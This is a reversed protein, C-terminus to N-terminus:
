KLSMSPPRGELSPTMIALSRQAEVLSSPKLGHVALVRCGSAGARLRKSREFTVAWLGSGLGDRSENYPLSHGELVNVHFVRIQHNPSLAPRDDVPYYVAVEDMYFSGMDVTLVKWRASSNEEIEAPPLLLPAADISYISGRAYRNDWLDNIVDTLTPFVRLARIRYANLEPRCCVLDSEFLGFYMKSTNSLGTNVLSFRKGKLGIGQNLAAKIASITSDTKM